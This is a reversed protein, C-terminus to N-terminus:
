RARGHGYCSFSLAEPERRGWKVNLVHNVVIRDLWTRFGSRGEFSALRTVAKVLIEYTADQTRHTVSCACPSTTSGDRIVACSGKSPEATAARARAVLALDDQDTQDSEVLPNIV